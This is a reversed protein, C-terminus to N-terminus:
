TNNIMDSTLLENIEFKKDIFKQFDETNRLKDITDGNTIIEKEFMNVFECFMSISYEEHNINKAIDKIDDQITM